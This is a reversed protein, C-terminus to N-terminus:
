ALLDEATNLWDLDLKVARGSRSHEVPKVQRDVAFRAALNKALKNEVVDVVLRGIVPLFQKSILALGGKLLYPLFVKFAHGSGGTALIISPNEPHRGIIWNEDPTDNYRFGLM